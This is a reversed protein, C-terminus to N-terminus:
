FIYQLTATQDALQVIWASGKVDTAASKKKKKLAYLPSFHM